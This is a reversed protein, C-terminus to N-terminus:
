IMHVAIDNESTKLYRVVYGIPTSAKTVKFKGHEKNKGATTKQFVCRSTSPCYHINIIM